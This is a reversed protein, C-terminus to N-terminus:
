WVIHWLDSVWSGFGVYKLSSGCLGSSPLFDRMNWHLIRLRRWCWWAIRRGWLFPGQRRSFWIKVVIIIIGVCILYRLSGSHGSLHTYVNNSSGVLQVPRMLCLIFKGLFIQISSVTYKYFKELMLSQGWNRQAWMAMLRSGCVSTPVGKTRVQPTITTANGSVSGQWEM